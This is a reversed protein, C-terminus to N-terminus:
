FIDPIMQDDRLAERLWHGLEPDYGVAARITKRGHERAAIACLHAGALPQVFGDKIDLIVPLDKAVHADIGGAIRIEARVCRRAHAAEAATQGPLCFDQELLAAPLIRDIPFDMIAWDRAVIEDEFLIQELHPIDQEPFACVEQLAVHEMVEGAPLRHLEGEALQVPCLM